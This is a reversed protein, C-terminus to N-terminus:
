RNVAVSSAKTIPHGTAVEQFYPSQFIYQILQRTARPRSRAARALDEGALSIEGEIRFPHLGAICHALTTKGLGPPGDLRAKPM